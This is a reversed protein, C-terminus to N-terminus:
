HVQGEIQLPINAVYGMRLPRTKRADLVRVKHAKIQEARERPRKGGQPQRKPSEVYGVGVAANFDPASLDIERLKFHAAVDHAYAPRRRVIEYVVVYVRRQEQIGEPSHFAGEYGSYRREYAWYRAHYLHGNVAFDGIRGDSHLHPRKVKNM